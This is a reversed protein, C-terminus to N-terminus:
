DATGHAGYVRTVPQGTVVIVATRRMAGPAGLAGHTVLLEDGLQYATFAGDDRSRLARVLNIHGAADDLAQRNGDVLSAALQRPIEVAAVNALEGLATPMAAEKIAFVHEVRTGAAFFRGPREPPSVWLGARTACCALALALLFVPSYRTTAM